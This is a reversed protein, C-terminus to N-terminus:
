RVSLGVERIPNNCNLIVKLALYTHRIELQFKDLKVIYGSCIRAITKKQQVSGGKTGLPQM